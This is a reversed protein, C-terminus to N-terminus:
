GGGARDADRTAIVRRVVVDAREGTVAVTYGSGMARWSDKVAGRWSAFRALYEARNADALTRRLQENEPDHALLAGRPPDLEERALVHVAHVDAGAAALRAGMRQVEDADGLFDSIVIARVAPSLVALVPAMPASESPTVSELTRAMEAVVGRRTRPALRRAGTDGAQPVILGVPDGQAHVVAALAIAIDRALRWKDHTPAPFAMSASADVVLWTTLLAREDTLRIFARDSRALLRWDLRRPDDGQRYPRYETFEAATGRM